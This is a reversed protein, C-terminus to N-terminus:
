RKFRKILALDADKDYDKYEAEVTFNVAYMLGKQGTLRFSKPVLTFIYEELEGDIVLDMTFKQASQTRFFATIYKYEQLGLTYSVKVTHSPKLVTKRVRSSGGSLKVSTTESGFDVSYGSSDPTLKLKEMNM